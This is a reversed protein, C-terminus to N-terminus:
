DLDHEPMPFDKIADDVAVRSRRILKAAEFDIASFEVQGIAQKLAAIQESTADRQQTLEALTRRPASADEGAAIANRIETQAQVMCKETRTLTQKVKRVESRLFAITMEPPESRVMDGDKRRFFLKGGLITHDIKM